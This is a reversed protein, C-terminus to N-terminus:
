PTWLVEISDIKYALLIEIITRQVIVRGSQLEAVTWFDAVDFTVEADAVQATSIRIQQEFTRADQHTLIYSYLDGGQHEVTLSALPVLAYWSRVNPVFGRAPDGDLLLDSWLPDDEGAQATIEINWLADKLEITM